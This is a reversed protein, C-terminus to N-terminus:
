VLVFQWNPKQATLEQWQEPTFHKYIADKNYTLRGNGAPPVDPLFRIEEEVIQALDADEFKAAIIWYRVNEQWLVSPLRDASMEFDWVGNQYASMSKLSSTNVSGTAQVGEPNCYQIFGAFKGCSRLNLLMSKFTNAVESSYPNTSYLAVMDPQFPIQVQLHRTGNGLVSVTYHTMLCNERASIGGDIVGTDYGFEYGNSHGKTYGVSYVSRMRNAITKLKEGISM